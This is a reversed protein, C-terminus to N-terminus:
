TASRLSLCLLRKTAKVLRVLNYALLKSARMITRQVIAATVSAEDRKRRM